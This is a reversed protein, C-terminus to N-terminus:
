GERELQNLTHKYEVLDLIIEGHVSVIHFMSKGKAIDIALVYDKKENM